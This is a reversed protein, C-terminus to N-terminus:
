DSNEDAGGDLIYQAACSFVAATFVNGGSMHYAAWYIDDVSEGADLLGRIAAIAGPQSMALSEYSAESVQRELESLM